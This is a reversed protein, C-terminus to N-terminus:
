KKQTVEVVEGGGGLRAERGGVGTITTGGGGNQGQRWGNGQKGRLSGDIPCRYSVVGTVWLLSRFVPCM